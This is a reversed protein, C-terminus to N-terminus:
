RVANPPASPPLATCMTCSLQTQRCPRPHVGSLPGHQGNVTGSRKGGAEKILKDFLLWGLWM